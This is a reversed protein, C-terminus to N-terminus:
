IQMWALKLVWLVLLLWILAQPVWLTPALLLILV